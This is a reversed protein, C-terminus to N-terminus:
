QHTWSKVWITSNPPHSVVVASEGTAVYTKSDVSITVFGDENEDMAIYYHENWPDRWGNTQWGVPLDLFVKDRPNHYTNGVVMAGIVNTQNFYGGGAGFGYYTKDVADQVQGPWKGYVTKYAKAAHAINMGESIAKRKKAAKKAAAVAPFLMGTLLGIIAIVVLMELLTFGYRGYTIKAKFEMIQEQWYRKGNSKGVALCNM